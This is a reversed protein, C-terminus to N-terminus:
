RPCIDRDLLKIFQERDDARMLEMLDAFDAEHLGETLLKLRGADDAEVATEVASVFDSTLVGDEDHIELQEAAEAM